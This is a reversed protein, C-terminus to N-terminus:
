SFLSIWIIVADQQLAKFQKNFNACFLKDNNQKIDIPM